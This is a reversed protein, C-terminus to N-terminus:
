DRELDRLPFTRLSMLGGGGISWHLAAWAHDGATQSIRPLLLPSARCRCMAKCADDEPVSIAIVRRRWLCHIARCTQMMWCWWRERM